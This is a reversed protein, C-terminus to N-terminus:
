GKRVLRESTNDLVMNAFTALLCTKWIEKQERHRKRWLASGNDIRALRVRVLDKFGEENENGLM